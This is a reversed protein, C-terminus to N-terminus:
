RPTARRTLWIGFLAVLTAISGFVIALIAELEM